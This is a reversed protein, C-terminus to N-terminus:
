EPKEKRLQLLHEYAAQIERFRAEIQALEAESAGGHKDPHNELVLARHARKVDSWSELCRHELGLAECAKGEGAFDFAQFANEFAPKWGQNFGDSMFHAFNGPLNRVFPSQLVNNVADRFRVTHLSGDSTQMTLGARQYLAGARPSLVSEDACALLPM